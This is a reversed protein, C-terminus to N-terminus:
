LTRLIDHFKYCSSNLYVAPRLVKWPFLVLTALPECRKTQPFHNTPHGSWAWLSSAISLHLSPVEQPICCYYIKLCFQPKYYLLRRTGFFLISHEIGSYCYRTRIDATHLYSNLCMQNEEFVLPKYRLAWCINTLKLAGVRSRDNTWGSWDLRCWTRSRALKVM